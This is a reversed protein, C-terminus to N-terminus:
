DSLWASDCLSEGLIFYHAIPVCSGLQFAWCLFYGLATFGAVVWWGRRHDELGTFLSWYFILFSIKVTWITTWFLVIIAFQLKLFTPARVRLFSQTLMEEGKAVKDLEFMIPIAHKYMIALSLLLLWAVAVALDDYLLKRLTYRIAFRFIAFLIAIAVVLWIITQM